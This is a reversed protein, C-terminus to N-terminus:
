NIIISKIADLAEIREQRAKDHWSQKISVDLKNIVASNSIFYEEGIDYGSLEVTKHCEDSFIPCCDFNLGEYFRNALYNYNTHTIKDEIYLSYKFRSLGSGTWDIRDIPKVNLGLELFKIRNKEHTSLFVKNQLYKKFYDIRGKRFGGYYICGYRGDLFFDTIPTEKHPSYSLANINVLSWDNVYKTVIKSCNPPHNAIVNYKKGSKAYKWIGTPEGLNYENTIYFLKADPSQTVWDNDVYSYGSAHNFVIVNYGEKIEDNVDDYSWILDAGVHDAIAKANNWHLNDPVCGIGGKHSDIILIKRPAVM